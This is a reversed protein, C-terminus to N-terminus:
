AQGGALQCGLAVLRTTTVDKSHSLWVNSLARMLKENREAEAEVTDIVKAGHDRLFDELPGAGIDELLEASDAAELLALLIPWAQESQRKLHEHLAETAWWNRQVNLWADVLDRHDSNM